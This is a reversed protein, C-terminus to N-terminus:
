DFQKSESSRQAELERDSLLKDRLAEYSDKIEEFVNKAEVIFDNAQDFTPCRTVIVGDSAIVGFTWDSSIAWPLPHHVILHVLVDFAIRNRVSDSSSLIRAITSIAFSFDQPASRLEEVLKTLIMRDEDTLRM